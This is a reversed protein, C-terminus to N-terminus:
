QESVGLLGIMASLMESASFPAASNGPMQQVTNRSWFLSMTTGRTTIIIRFHPIWYLVEPPPHNKCRVQGILPRPYTHHLM